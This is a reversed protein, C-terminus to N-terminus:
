RLHSLGFILEPSILLGCQSNFRMWPPHFDEDWETGWSGNQNVVNGISTGWLHLGGLVQEWHGNGPHSSCGNRICYVLLPAGILLMYKRKLCLTTFGQPVHPHYTL